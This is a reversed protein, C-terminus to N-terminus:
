PPDILIGNRDFEGDLREFGSPLAGAPFRAARASSAIGSRMRMM